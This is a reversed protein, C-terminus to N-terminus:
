VDSFLSECSENECKEEESKDLFKIREPLGLYIINKIIQEITTRTGFPLLNVAGELNKCELLLGLKITRRNEATLPEGGYSIVYPNYSGSERDKEYDEAADACYIFKGIHYGVRSPVLKDEEKLGYSFVEALLEGFLSAPADASACGSNELESIKALKESVLESLEPENAKKNASSLVPKSLTVAFKKFGREDNLDDRVKHYGLVAFAKAVYRLAENEDLMPRTKLPHAICRRKKTSFAEDEIYLMRVMALFVSDYTLAANSLFGTNHKMARCIGCYTARYFEYERVLMEAKVPRVYGFMDGGCFEYILGAIGCDFGVGFADYLGLGSKSKYM